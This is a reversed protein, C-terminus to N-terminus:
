IVILFFHGCGEQSSGTFLNCLLPCLGTMNKNRLQKGDPQYTLPPVTWTPPAEASNRLPVGVVFASYPPAIPFLIVVWGGNRCPKRFVPNTDLSFVRADGVCPISM